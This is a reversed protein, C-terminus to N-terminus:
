TSALVQNSASIAVLVSGGHGNICVVCFKLHDHYVNIVSFMDCNCVNMYRRSVGCGRVLFCRVRVYFVAYLVDRVYRVPVRVSIVM